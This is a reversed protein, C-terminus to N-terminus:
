LGVRGTRSILTDLMDDMTTMARASAQYGRQFRMLNTMEEDLSVGAVSQRRDDVASVLSQATSQARTNAQVETGVQAVLAQYAQDTSGGRLAAIAQAVDNAGTTATSGAQVTAATAVVAITAATTGTTSFFPTSTHLANVKSVLDAAVADLQSLYTLPQGTPSALSALAGLKGGPTASLTQPWNCGAATSPDVLTVGGFDVKVSGDGLDTVSTQALGSLQDLLQDRRDMLDNPQQGRFVADKISTNLGALEKAAAAVDGSPGTIGNYQAQAQQAVTSLQDSITKFTSALTQANTVLATRAGANEPANAVDSWASWFKGLQASLGNDSPEGFALEVQDLSDARTSTDGLSSSQARYQIDLFQDRIRRISAVDVGSGLQAGAGTLSSNAPVVFPAAPQLQAEQRSYGPTNANAINHGTVDIAQQQAILGRLSTQLGFFTSISTM